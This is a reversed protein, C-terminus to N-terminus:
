RLWLLLVPLATGLGLCLWVTRPKPSCKMALYIGLATTTALGLGMALAVAGFATSSETKADHGPLASHTHPKSLEHLFAHLATPPPGEKPVDNLRFVQWAGSLAFYLILPAFVCGLYLHLQRLSRM